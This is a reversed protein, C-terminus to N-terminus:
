LQLLNAIQDFLVGLIFGVSLLGGYLTIMIALRMDRKDHQIKPVGHHQNEFEVIDVQNSLDDDESWLAYAVESLMQKNAVLSGYTYVVLHHGMSNDGVEIADSTKAMKREDEYTIGILTWSSFEFHFLTRLAQITMALKPTLDSIRKKKDSKM